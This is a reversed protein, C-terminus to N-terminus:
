DARQDGAELHQRMRLVEDGTVHHHKRALERFGCSRYFARGVPNQVFVEVELPGRMSRAREVLARGIGRRHHAPDVFLAGVERKGVLSLFGAVRGEVEFILTETVDMYFSSINRRETALFEAELFPHGVLSADYWVELLADLDDARYPRIM